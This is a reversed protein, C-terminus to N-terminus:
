NWSAKKIEKKIDEKVQENKMLSSNVRWSNIEQLKKLHINDIKNIVNEKSFM